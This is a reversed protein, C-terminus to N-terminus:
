FTFNDDKIRIILKEQSLELKIFGAKNEFLGGDCDIV